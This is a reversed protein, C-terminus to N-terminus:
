TFIKKKGTHALVEAEFVNFHYLKQVHTVKQFKVKRNKSWRKIDETIKKYMMVNM